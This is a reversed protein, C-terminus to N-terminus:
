ASEMGPPMAYPGDPFAYELQEATFERTDAAEPPAGVVLWLQDEATDNFVQRVSDATVLVAGLPALEIRDGDVLMRGSGELLVYLEEHDVHRHRTSAQGATLRWLRAGLREAGLPRAIDCNAIKMLNSPRWEATASDLVRYAV